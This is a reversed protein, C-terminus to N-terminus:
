TFAAEYRTSDSSIPSLFMDVWQRDPLQVRHLDAALPLGDMTALILSFPDRLASPRTGRAQQLIKVLKLTPMPKGDNYVKFYGDVFPTFTAATIQPTRHDVMAGAWAVKGLGALGIAVTGAGAM